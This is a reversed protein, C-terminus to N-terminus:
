HRLGGPGRVIHTLVDVVLLLILIWVVVAGSRWIWLATASMTALHLGGSTTGTLDDVDIRCALKLAELAPGARHARAFLAAHIAPSLSSGHATRPEYYALNPELSGTAVEEPVLHHLMLVDAQKIM